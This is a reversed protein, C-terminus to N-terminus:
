PPPTTLFPVSEPMGLASREPPADTGAEEADADADAGAAEAEEAKAAAESGEPDSGTADSGTADSGGADFGWSDSGSGRAAVKEETGTGPPEEPEPPWSAPAPSVPSAPDAECCCYWYDALMYTEPYRAHHRRRSITPLPVAQLLQPEPDKM